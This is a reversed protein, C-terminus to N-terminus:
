QRSQLRAREFEDGKNWQPAEAANAVRLGLAFAVQAHQVLGRFDWNPSYEDGPKHYRNENYDKFQEAAWNESHGVFKSGPNLSLAPVGAKAFPFHDSRYFSGQEPRADPSVSLKQEGAAEVVLKGLTSREAGLPTLDTTPGLVNLSDLNLCAVTKALPALPHRVYYEAGLLGQEEATTALFLISRKPRTAPAAFAKALTILAAVGTANDIAGNYINDGPQDPRVGLHDWHATYVVYENKLNPDSGRVIGAVNPAMVKRVASRLTMDVKIGLPVPRFDRGEAAKRLEDLNKGSLAAIRRATEETVWSKLKLAAAGAEPVLGFREAGWSGQVVGWGYGATGNTHILIVGAAGRRAAEEYKYTWRGYYTLAGGGFLAPEASTSPPDNVMVLLVRGRVDLGKYDDWNYEPAQIGHGVFVVEADLAVEAQDLDSGAVFEEGFKFERNGGAGTVVLKTGPDPRGGVMEVQQFYTQGAAAPELGIEEFQAAIYKAALLGGRTGPGRGELLDDALYKVHARLRHEELQAGTASPLDSAEAGPVPAPSHHSMVQDFNQVRVTGRSSSRSRSSRKRSSKRQQMAAMAAPSGGAASARRVEGALPGVLGWCLLCVALCVLPRYRTM